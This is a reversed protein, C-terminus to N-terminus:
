ANETSSGARAFRKVRATEAMPVAYISPGVPSASYDM